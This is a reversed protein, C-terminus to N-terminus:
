MLEQIILQSLDLIQMSPMEVSIKQHKLDILMMWYKDLIWLFIMVIIRIFHLKHWKTVRSQLEKKLNQIFMYTISIMLNWKLDKKDLCEMTKSILQSGINIQIFLNMKLISLNTINIKNFLSNAM